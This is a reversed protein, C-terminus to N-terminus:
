RPSNHRNIHSGSELIGPVRKEIAAFLFLNTPNLSLNRVTALRVSIAEAIHVLLRDNRRVGWKMGKVGYHYLENNM